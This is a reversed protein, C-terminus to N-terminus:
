YVGPRVMPLRVDPAGLRAPILRIMALPDSRLADRRGALSHKIVGPAGDLWRGTPRRRQATPHLEFEEIRSPDVQTPGETDPGYQGVFPAMGCRDIRDRRPHRIVPPLSLWDVPQPAAYTGTVGVRRSPASSASAIRSMTLQHRGQESQRRLPRVSGIGTPDVIVHQIPVSRAPRDLVLGGRSKQFRSSNNSLSVVHDLNFGPWTSETGCNAHLGTDGRVISPSIRGEKSNARLWM